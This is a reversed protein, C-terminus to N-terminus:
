EDLKAYVSNKSKFEAVIEKMKKVLQINDHGALLSDLEQVQKSILDFDSEAVKAIMIQPHYTPLTNEKNNLLEEYLKEGPRLGTYKIQIDRGLELRSLKIMKKALDLIKVSKGMDFIFIEGGHGMTGAELVLQCAEPITMFFRTVEPDTITVPGGKEIQERFLPIVSGNSGLVNGFRTTIFRTLNKRNLSQTYIEAIRKTAGMISTPNVAKDTSVMVFKEAKFEIALDAIAKTGLVNTMVAEVPNNEMMPVHKYAAAHYIIQPLFTEMIKRMRVEHNIDCIIVEINAKPFKENLELELFYMPSEAQDVLIIKKPSFRVVQRVIESGISGAAGTVLICKDLLERRVKEEDLKIEDRELLDEINIKKIQKFSLEGNIWKSVPPVSLVKTNYAMCKEIIEQKKSAKINQISIILHEITNDELLKELKDPGYIPIDEIKMGIKKPDDDIFGLVKYKTGADRDLSRKSILGSEGAGYILVNTKNRSPNHMEMYTIKVLIRFAILIFTTTLFDIIIISYPIFNIGNIFFYSVLDTLVFLVSGITTVVVIRVADGTSTYQIIGTYTKAIFFTIIRIGAIYSLVYPLDHADTAPVHFNFRLMYALVVSFACICIDILLILWRPINLKSFIM